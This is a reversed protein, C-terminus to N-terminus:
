RRPTGLLHQEVATQSIWLHRDAGGGVLTLMDDAMVQLFRGSDPPLRLAHQATASEAASLRQLVCLDGDRLAPATGPDLRRLVTLETQWPGLTAPGAAGPPLDHVVLTPQQPTGTAAMPRGDVRVEVRDGVRGLAAPGFGAWTSPDATVVVVRAGLALARFAILQGAWVGGVLAVRTPEPRFLRITVAARRRDAGLVLGAAHPTPGLRALAAPSVAHTGIRLRPLRGSPGGRGPAAEPGLTRAPPGPPGQPHSDPAALPSALARARTLPEATALATATATTTADADTRARPASLTPADPVAPGTVPPAAVPPPAAASAAPGAPRAGAAAPGEPYPGVPGAPGEPYPGAPSGPSAGFTAPVASRREDGPGTM